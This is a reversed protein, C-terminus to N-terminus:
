LKGERILEIIELDSQMHVPLFGLSQYLAYHTEMRRFHIAARIHRIGWIRFIWNAQTMGDHEKQM